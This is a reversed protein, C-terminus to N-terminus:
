IFGGFQHSSIPTELFLAVGFHITFIISFGIFLHIIQPYSQKQFCGYIPYSYGLEKKAGSMLVCRLDLLFATSIELVKRERPQCYTPLNLNHSILWGMALRIILAQKNVM